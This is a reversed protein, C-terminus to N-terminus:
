WVLCGQLWGYAFLGRWFSDVWEESGEVEISLLYDNALRDEWSIWVTKTEM